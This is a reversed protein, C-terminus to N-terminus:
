VNEEEEEGLMRIDSRSQIDENDWLKLLMERAKEFGHLYGYFYTTKENMGSDVSTKESDKSLKEKLKM